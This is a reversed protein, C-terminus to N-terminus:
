HHSANYTNNLFLPFIIDHIIRLYEKSIPVAWDNCAVTDTLLRSYCSVYKSGSWSKTDDIVLIIFAEIRLLYIHYVYM